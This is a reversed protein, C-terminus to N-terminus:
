LKQLGQFNVLNFEICHSGIFFFVFCVFFVTQFITSAGEYAIPKGNVFLKLTPFGKVRSFFFLRDSLQVHAHSTILSSQLSKALSRVYEQKKCLADEATCDV